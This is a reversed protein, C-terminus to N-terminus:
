YLCNSKFTEDDTEIQSDHFKCLYNKQQCNEDATNATTLQCYFQIIIPPYIVQKQLEIV